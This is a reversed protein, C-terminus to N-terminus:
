FEAILCPKINAFEQFDLRVIPWIIQQKIGYISDWFEFEFLFNNLLAGTYGNWFYMEETCFM